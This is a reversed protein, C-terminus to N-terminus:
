GPGTFAGFDQRFDDSQPRLREAAELQAVGRGPLWQHQFTRQQVRVAADEMTWANSEKVVGRLERMTDASEPDWGSLYPNHQLSSDPLRPREGAGAVDPFYSGAHAASQGAYWERKDKRADQPNGVWTGNTPHAGLMESSVQKAGGVMTNTWIRNNMTGRTDWEARVRAGGEFRPLATQDFMPGAWSRNQQQRQDIRNQHSAARMETPCQPKMGTHYVCYGRGNLPAPICM